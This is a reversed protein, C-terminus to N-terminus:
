AIYKEPLLRKYTHWYGESCVQVVGFEDGPQAKRIEM